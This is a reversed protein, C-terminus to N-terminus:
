RAVARFLKTIRQKSIYTANAKADSLHQRLVADGSLVGYKLLERFNGENAVPSNAANTAEILVCFAM